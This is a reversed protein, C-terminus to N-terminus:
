RGAPLPERRDDMSPHTRHLLPRMALLDPRDKARNLNLKYNWVTALRAFPLKAYRDRPDLDFVEATDILSDVDWTGDIWYESIEITGGFFRLMLEQSHPGLELTYDRHDLARRWASGRALIDLDAIDDRLGHALLPGSGFIVFDDPDLGLSLLRRILPHDRLRESAPFTLRRAATGGGPSVPGAAAAGRDGPVGM